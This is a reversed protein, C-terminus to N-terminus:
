QLLDSRAQPPDLHSLRAGPVEPRDGAVEVRYAVPTPKLVIAQEPPAESDRQHGHLNGKVALKLEALLIRVDEHLNVAAIDHPLLLTQQVDRQLPNGLVTVLDRPQVAIHNEAAIIPHFAGALRETLKWQQM